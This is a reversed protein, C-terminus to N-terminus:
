NIGLIAVMYIFLLIGLLGTFAIFFYSLNPLRNKLFGALLLDLITLVAGLFLVRLLDGPYGYTDAGLDTFHTILQNPSQNFNFYFIFLSILIPLLSAIILYRYINKPQNIM